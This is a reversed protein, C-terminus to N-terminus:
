RGLKTQSDKALQRFDLANKGIEIMLKRYGRQTPLIRFYCHLVLKNDEWTWKIHQHRQNTHNSLEDNTNRFFFSCGVNAPHWDNEGHQSSRPCRGIMVGLGTTQTGSQIINRNRIKIMPLINHSYWIWLDKKNDRLRTESFFGERTYM